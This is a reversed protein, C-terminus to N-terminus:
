VEYHQNIDAEFLLIYFLYNIENFGGYNNKVISVAIIMSAVVNVHEKKM